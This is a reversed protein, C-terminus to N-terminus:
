DNVIEKNPHVLGIEVHTSYYGNSSGYWRMWLGGKNTEIKYFTWLEEDDYYENELKNRVINDDSSVIEASVVYGGVLDEEGGEFDTLCVTECCNYDHYLIFIYGDTTTIKVEESEIELGSVSKITKSQLLRLDEIRKDIKM